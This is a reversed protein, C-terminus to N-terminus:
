HRQRARLNWVHYVEEYRQVVNDVSLTAVRARANRTRETARGAAIAAEIAAAVETPDTGVLWAATEDVIERHAAIDSVVLPVGCAMGELVANPRGEFPSLAVMVDAAKLRSWVDPVFGAFTVREAIGLTAARAEIAARLPGDGCLVARAPCRRLLIALADLLLLPNKQTSLRGVSVILAEDTKGRAAAPAADIEQLPTVNPVVHIRAADIGVQTWYHRGGESNAICATARRGVLARVRHLLSPPYAEASARESVIWPVGLVTAAMGALIDMQMLWTHALDPRVRWMLALLRLVIIPDFRGRAGLRHIRCGTSELRADNVGPFAVAVHVDWGRRVLGEVVYALQPEAGGGGM